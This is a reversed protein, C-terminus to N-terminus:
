PSETRQGIEGKGILFAAGMYSEVHASILAGLEPYSIRVVGSEDPKPFPGTQLTDILDDVVWERFTAPDLGMEMLLTDHPDRGDSERGNKAIAAQDFMTQVGAKTVIM